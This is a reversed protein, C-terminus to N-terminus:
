VSPNRRKEIGYGHCFGGAYMGLCVVALIFINLHMSLNVHM